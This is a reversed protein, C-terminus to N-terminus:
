ASPRSIHFDTHSPRASAILEDIPDPELLPSEAVRASIAPVHGQFYTEPWESSKRCM